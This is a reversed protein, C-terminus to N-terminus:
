KKRKKYLNCPDTVPVELERGLIDKKSPKTADDATVASWPTLRLYPIEGRYTARTDERSSSIRLM